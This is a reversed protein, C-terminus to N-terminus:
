NYMVHGENEKFYEVCMSSWKDEKTDYIYINNKDKIKTDHKVIIKDKVRFFSNKFDYFDNLKFILPTPKILTFKKSICNYVECSQSHVGGIVFLKNGMAVSGHCIRGETLGPMYSWKNEFHDYAEVSWKLPGGNGGTVVIKGAFVVCSHYCRARQMEELFTWEAKRLDYATCNRTENDKEDFGGTVFLMDMFICASFIYYRKYTDLQDYVNPKITKFDRTNSSYLSIEHGNYYCFEFIKMELMCVRKESSKLGSDLRISAMHSSFNFHFFNDICCRNEFSNSISPNPNEKLAIIKEIHDCCKKCSQCFENSKVYQELVECSLLQLRVLKLLDYIYVKRIKENHEIWNIIAQFVEIESSVHLTSRSVFFKLTKFDINQFGLAKSFGVFNNDVVSVLYKKLLKLSFLKSLTFFCFINRKNIFTKLDELFMEDDILLLTKTNLFLIFRKRDTSLEGTLFNKM